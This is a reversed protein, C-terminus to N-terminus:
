SSHKLHLSKRLFKELSLLLASSLVIVEVYLLPERFASTFNVVAGALWFYVPTKTNSSTSPLLIPLVVCATLFVVIGIWVGTGIVPKPRLTSQGRIAKHVKQTFDHPPEALPVQKLMRGLYNESEARDDRLATESMVERTFDAPPSPLEVQRLLTRLHDKDQNKEAM